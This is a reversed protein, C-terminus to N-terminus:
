VDCHSLDLARRACAERRQNRWTCVPAKGESNLGDACRCRHSTAQDCGCGGGGRRRRNRLLVVGPVCVCGPVALLLLLAVASRGTLLLLLM